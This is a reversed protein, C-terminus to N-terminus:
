DDWRGPHFYAADLYHAPIFVVRIIGANCPSYYPVRASRYPSSLVGSPLMVRGPAPLLRSSYYVQVSLFYAAFYGALLLCGVRGVM